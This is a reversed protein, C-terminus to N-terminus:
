NANRAVYLMVGANLTYPPTAGVHVATSVSVPHGARVVAVLAKPQVERTAILPLLKALTIAAVDPGLDIITEGKLGVPVLRTEEGTTAPKGIDQTQQILLRRGGCGHPAPHLPRLM